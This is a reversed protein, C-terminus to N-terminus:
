LFGGDEKLTAADAQIAEAAQQQTENSLAEDGHLASAMGKKADSRQSRSSVAM